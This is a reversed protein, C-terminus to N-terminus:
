KVLLMLGNQPNEFCGIDVHEGVKRRAGLLDVDGETWADDTGKDVCPSNRRLRFDGRDANRFAASVDDILICGTGTLAADSSFACNSVCNARIAESEGGQWASGGAGPNAPMANCVAVCNVFKSGASGILFGTASGKGFYGFQNRAVTCNRITTAAGDTIIGAGNLLGRTGDVLTNDVRSGKSAYICGCSSNPQVECNQFICHTVLSDPGYLGIVYGNSSYGGRCGVFKVRSVTGGSADVTVLSANNFYSLVNSVCLNDLLSGAQNLRIFCEQTYDPSYALLPANTVVTENWGRGIVKLGTLDLLGGADFRGKGLMITQGPVAAAILAALNTKAATEPTAYPFAPTVSTDDAAALYNTRVGVRLYELEPEAEMLLEGKEDYVSLYVSRTGATAFTQDYEDRASVIDAETVTENKFTWKCTYTKGASMGTIIPMCHFTEGVFGATPEVKIGVTLQGAEAEYCGIDPFDGQMRDNGDLDKEDVGEDATGKEYAASTTKLHYDGNAADVFGDDTVAVSGEGVVPVGSGWGCHSFCKTFQAETGGNRYWEPHGTSTDKAATGRTFITNVIRANRPDFNEAYNWYVGACVCNDGNKATNDAFTCNYIKGPGRLAVCGRTINNNKRVLCNDVQGGWLYITSNGGSGWLTNNNIISHHLRGGALGISAGSGSNAGNCKTIRSDALEGGQATIFLVGATNNAKANVNSITVGSVVAEPHELRLYQSSDYSTGSRMLFTKDRGAGKLTIGKAIWLTGTVSYIGEALNIVQGEPAAKIAENISDNLALTIEAPGEPTFAPGTADSAALRGRVVGDAILKSNLHPRYDGSYVDTFESETISVAGKGIAPVKADWACDFFCNTLTVNISSYYVEPSMPTTDYWAHDAFFVCNSLITKKSAVEQMYVAGGRANAPTTFNTRNDAFTCNVVECNKYIRIAGTTYGSNRIFACNKVKASTAGNAYLVGSGGSDRMSNNRFIVDEVEASANSGIYCVYGAGSSGATCGEVVLRSVKGKGTTNPFEIIAGSTGGVDQAYVDKITLNDVLAGENTLIFLKKTRYTQGDRTIITQGPGAGVVKVNGLTLAANVSFTGVGIQVTDGDEAAAVAAAVDAYDGPVNITKAAQAGLAASVALLACWVKASKM